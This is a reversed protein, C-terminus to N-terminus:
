SWHTSYWVKWSLLLRIPLVLCHKTVRALKDVNTKNKKVILPHFIKMSISMMRPAMKKRKKKDMDTFKNQM